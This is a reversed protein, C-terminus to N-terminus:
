ARANRSRSRKADRGRCVAQWAEDRGARTAKERRMAAGDAVQKTRADGRREARLAGSAARRESRERVARQGDCCVVQGCRVTAGGRLACTASQLAGRGGGCRATRVEVSVAQSVALALALAGSQSTAREDSM